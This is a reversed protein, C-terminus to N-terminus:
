WIHEHQVLQPAVLVLELEKRLVMKSHHIRVLVPSQELVRSRRERQRHLDMGLGESQHHFEPFEFKSYLQFKM